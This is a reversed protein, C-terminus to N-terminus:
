NEGPWIAAQVTGGQSLSGRFMAPTNFVLAPEGASGMVIVGGGGGIRDLEDLMRRAAEGVGLGRHEILAAISRAMGLRIFAEGDGTCSVASSANDAYVGAGIVPTDGVRGNSKATMGGTSTAAALNGAADRAVAGVTGYRKEDGDPKAPPGQPPAWAPRQPLPWGRRDLEILLTLWRRETFHYARDVMALGEAEAFREAGEGILMLHPSRQMITRALAIPNRVRAVGAAAGASRDRGDMIGADLEIGGERTFVAGRGANFLVDDELVRVAQDVADLAAGGAALVEGGAKLAAHLGQRYAAEDEPPLAGHEAVGAGGHIAISWPASASAKTSALSRVGTQQRIPKAGM